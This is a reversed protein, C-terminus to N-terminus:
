MNMSGKRRLRPEALRAKGAELGPVRAAAMAVPAAPAVLSHSQPLIVTNRKQRPVGPAGKASGKALAQGGVTPRAPRTKAAPEVGGRRRVDSQRSLELPAIVRSNSKSAAPAEEESLEDLEIGTSQSENAESDAQGKKMRYSLPTVFRKVDTERMASPRPTCIVSAGGPCPASSSM